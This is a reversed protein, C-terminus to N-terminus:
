IIDDFWTSIKLGRKRLFILVRKFVKTFIRPASTLGFPMCRFFFRQKEWDFCLFKWFDPHMLFMLYADCLDISVFYDGPQIMNSIVDHGELKFSTKLIYNNLFKLNLIVRRKKSDKKAVTFIPSVFQDKSPPTIAVATKTRLISVEQSISFSRSASFSGSSLTLMPPTKYFKIKYGFEVIQLVFNNTTVKRWFDIFLPLRGAGPSVKSAPQLLPEDKRPNAETSDEITTTHTEAMRVKTKTVTTPGTSHVETDKTLNFGPETDQGIKPLKAFFGM